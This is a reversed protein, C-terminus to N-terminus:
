AYLPEQQMAEIQEHLMDVQGQWYDLTGFWPFNIAFIPDQWRRALWASYHLLRLTRLPEILALERRDFPRFQEYGELLASLQQTQQAREGSLLMWLDQVAPGSRADDLDVFHPGGHGEDDLPTWLINGPHCDGHLRIQMASELGFHGAKSLGDAAPAILDLATACAQQWRSRVELAVVDHELLYRMPEIGFSQRDLAPRHVFAQASGATHIRALFRGIWELVEWDDLEPRRGGRWPSISFLFGGHEHVTSGQLRLPAVVPIERDALEQSFAHEEEIQARSWRGPRYFKAVVKDGEDQHALYVRNEYSSLATLRGDPTLGAAYLADLVCDPTLDAYPHTSAQLNSM